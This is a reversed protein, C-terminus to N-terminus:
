DGRKRACWVGAASSGRVRVRGEGTGKSDISELIELADASNTEDTFIKAEKGDVTLQHAEVIESDFNEMALETAINNAADYAEEETDYMEDYRSGSDRIQWQKKAQPDTRTIEVKVGHADLFAQVQEKTVKGEQLDLWNDLGSWYVEREKVVGKAILGKIQQKWSDASASKTTSKGVEVSLASYFTAPAASQNLLGSASKAENIKTDILSTAQERFRDLRESGLVTSGKSAPRQLNTDYTDKSDFATHAETDTVEFAGGLHKDIMDAFDTTAIKTDNIIVM